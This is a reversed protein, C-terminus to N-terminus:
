EAPSEPPCCEPCPSHIFERWGLLDEARPLAQGEALEFSAFVARCRDTVFVAPSPAGDLSVAGVSRHLRGDADVLVPFEIEQRRAVAPVAAPTAAVIELVQAEDTRLADAHQQLARVLPDVRADAGTGALVLVLNARGRYASLEVAGGGTAPLRTDPFIGGPRGGGDTPLNNSITM